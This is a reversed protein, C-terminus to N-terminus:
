MKVKNLLVKFAIEVIKPLGNRTILGTTELDLLFPIIEGQLGGFVMTQIAEARAKDLATNIVEISYSHATQLHNKFCKHVVFSRTCGNAPCHICLSYYTHLFM